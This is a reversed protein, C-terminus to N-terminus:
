FHAEHVYTRVYTILSHVYTCVYVTYTRVYTILSHSRLSLCSPFRLLLLVPLPLFYMCNLNSCPGLGILRAHRCIGSACTGLGTICSCRATRCYEGVASHWFKWGYGGGCQAEEPQRWQLSIYVYVYMSIAKIIRDSSGYVYVTLGRWM